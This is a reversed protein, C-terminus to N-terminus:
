ATAFARWAARGTAERVVGAAILQRVLRLAAQPTISLVDALGRATVVPTRLVHDLARSLHSRSTHALTAGAAEARQLSALEERAARAAAAVCALFGILWETGVRLALRHHLQIPASWFPLPIDRGFGADRWLCAALFLGDTALPDTHSQRNMWDRAGHGARIIAPGPDRRRGSDLWGEVAADDITVSWGLSGHTERVAAANAVPRWTRHEALRRWLRALRLASGVVDDSPVVDPKSGQASMTPLEVDLRGALAAATYSGTLGADRLALDRPHIWTHAHALWGAAERYALRARLGEVVASSVTAATAELRAVADQAEALPQLLPHTGTDGTPMNRPVRATSPILGAPDTDSAAVIFGQYCLSKTM